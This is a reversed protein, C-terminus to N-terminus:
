ERAYKKAENALAMGEEYNLNNKKANERIKKSLEKSYSQISFLLDVPIIAAVPKNAKRIVTSQNQYYTKDLTEGLSKRLTMADIYKTM